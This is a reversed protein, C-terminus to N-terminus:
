TSTTVEPLVTFVSDASCIADIGGVRILEIDFVYDRASLASLHTEDLTISVTSTAADISMTGATTSLSLEVAGGVKRKIDMRASTYGSLDLPEYCVIYGSTAYVGFSAASIGNFELTNADIVTVQHFEDDQIDNSDAANLDTLGIADIIAVFWQDPVHHATATVRMPATNTMASIAVFKKISTEIRFTITESAGKRAEVTIQPLSM